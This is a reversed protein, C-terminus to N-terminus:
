NIFDEKETGVVCHEFESLANLLCIKQSDECKDGKDPMAQIELRLYSTLNNCSIEFRKLQQEELKTKM